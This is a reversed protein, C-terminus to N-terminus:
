RRIGQPRVGYRGMVGDLEGSPGMSKVISKVTAILQRTGDPGTREETQVETGSAYNNVIFEVGVGAGSASVGLRGASDRELPMIAEAGAEAFVGAGRAFAFFQPTNYVGGSYASLSPSDYVGGLANATVGSSAQSQAYSVAGAGIAVLGSAAILALAIAPSSGVLMLGANLLLLPLQQLISAGIDLLAEEFTKASDEGAVMSAGIAEFFDLAADKGISQISEALSDFAQKMALAKQDTKALAANLADFARVEGLTNVFAQWNEKIFAVEEAAKEEETVFASGIERIRAMHDREALALESYRRASAEKLKEEIILEKKKEEILEQIGDIQKGLAKVASNRETVYKEPDVMETYADYLINLRDQQTLEEGRIRAELGAVRLREQMAATVEKIHDAAIKDRNLADYDTKDEQVPTKPPTSNVALRNLAEMDRIMIQIQEIRARYVKTAAEINEDSRAFAYPSKMISEVMKDMLATIDKIMQEAEGINEPTDVMANMAKQNRNMGATMENILNTFSKIGEQNQEALMQGWAEKLDGVSNALKDFAGTATEGAARAAGGFAKEVEGLIVEQAGMLDGSEEMAKVMERQQETWVFGVRSLASMGQTPSDLAKGLMNASSVLDGGMVQSMDLVAETTRKFQDGTISRFGLLVANMGIIAEDGFTTVSQLDSAMQQLEQSTLGVTGGTAALVANLNSVAQEQVKYTAVLDAGIDVIQKLGGYVAKAAAVPGQMVSQIDRFKDMMSKTKKEARDSVGVLKELEANTISIGNPTVKVALQALDPM